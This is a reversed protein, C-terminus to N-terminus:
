LNSWEEKASVQHVPGLEPQNSTETAKLQLVPPERAIVYLRPEQKM